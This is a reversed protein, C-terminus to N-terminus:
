LIIMKKRESHSPTALEYYYVGKALDSADFRVENYGKEFNQNYSKVLKGAANFVNLTAASQTPLRFSIQTQEMFPNPQNQYLAFVQAITGNGTPLIYEFDVNQTNGDIDIAEAATVQSGISFVQSLNESAQLTRFTLTFMTEDEQLTVRDKNVWVNTLYGADLHATGFNEETLNPLAGMKIGEYQMVKTDFAMTMQYAQRGVFDSAKVDVTVLQGAKFSQDNIRLKLTKDSGFRDSGGNNVTLPGNGNVDGLRIAIFDDDIFNTLIPNHSITQPYPVSLPGSPPTVVVPPFVYSRQVFRWDSAGIGDIHSVSGLVLKQIKLYDALTVTNNFNVDAAVWQYPSAFPVTGFIHNVIALLDGSTIGTNGATVKSCSVTTNDGSNATFTYTGAAITTQTAPTTGTLAVAVNAVPNNPSKWAVIDGGLNVTPLGNNINAAGNTLDVPVDTDVGGLNQNIEVVVPIGDITVSSTTNAAGILNVKIKFIIANNPLTIGALTTETWTIGINNGIISSQLDGTATLAPNISTISVVTAVAANTVHLSYQMSRIANFQQVTVPIEVMTGTAGATTGVIIAMKAGQTVNGNLVQKCNTTLDTITVTYTGAVLSTVTATTANNANASWVYSFNGSGGTPTATLSGNNAGFYSTTGNPVVATFSNVSGSTVNVNVACTNTNGGFDTVTLVAVNTGLNGCNFSNPALSMSSIGCNDNSNLGIDTALVAGVGNSGLAVTVSNLCVATPITNDVVTLLITDKALNGCNDSAEYVVKYVGPIYTANGNLTPFTRVPTLNTGQYVKILGTVTNCDTIAASMDLQTVQINCGVSSSSQSNVLVTAPLAVTSPKVNDNVNIIQTYTSTNNCGDTATWKRTVSYKGPCTGPTTIPAIPLITPTGCNDSATIATTLNIATICTVNSPTAFDVTNPFTFVPATPDTITILQNCTASNGANDTAKWTRTIVKCTGALLSPATVDTFTIPALGCNEAVQAALLQGVTASPATSVACTISSNAPCTTIVPASTEQVNVASTCISTNGAADKVTLTVSVPAGVNACNFTSQSIAFPTTLHLGCNDLSSANVQSALITQTGTATINVNISPLCTAVPPTADKIQYNVSITSSNGSRDTARFTLSSVAGIPLVKRYIGNVLTDLPNSLEIFILEADPVCDAVLPKLDIRLTDTCNQRNPASNVIYTSGPSTWLPAAVDTVNVVQTVTSTNGAVDSATWKRTLTYNYKNPFYSAPVGVATVLSDRTYVIASAGLVGNCNDTATVTPLAPIACHNTNVTTFTGSIVPSLADVVNISTTCTAANNNNDKVTLTVTSAGLNSCSVSTVNTTFGLAGCGQPDYSGNDLDTAVIPMSAATLMITPLSAKCIAVPPIADAQVTISQQQSTSGGASSYSWTINYTGVAFNYVPPFVGVVQNVGSASPTGYILATAGCMGSYAAPANIQTGCATSIAPLSTVVPLPVSSNAFNVTLTTSAAIANNKDKVSITVPISASSSVLTGAVPSQEFVLNSPCNDTATFLTTYNPLPVSACPVPANLSITSPGTLATPNSGDVVNVTVVHTGTNGAADKATFTITTIGIPFIGSSANVGSGNVILPITGTPYQKTWTYTMSAYPTCADFVEKNSIMVTATDSCGTTITRSINLQPSYAGVPLTPLGTFIPAVMDKVTISHSCTATNGSGDTAKWIVTSTGTNFKAGMLDTTAAFPNGAFGTYNHSKIVSGCADFTTPSYITSLPATYFCNTADTSVSVSSPCTITPLGLDKITVLMTDMVSLNNSLQTVRFIVPTTGATFVTTLPIVSSNLVFPGTGIKYDVRLNNCNDKYQGPNVVSGTALVVSIGSISDRTCGTLTEANLTLDNPAKVVPTTADAIDLVIMLRNGIPTESSPSLLADRLGLYFIISGGADACTVKFQHPNAPNQLVANSIDYFYAQTNSCGPGSSPCCSSNIGFGLNNLVTFNVIYEGTIPDLQINATSATNSITCQADLRQTSCLCVFAFLVSM